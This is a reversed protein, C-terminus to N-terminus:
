ASKKELAVPFYLKITTGKDVGASTVELKGQMESMTSAAYHLGLGSGLKKTSYGQRCVKGLAVRDIGRGNDSLELMVQDKFISTCITIKGGMDGKGEKIAERANELLCLIALRLKARELYLVPLPQLTKELEINRQKLAYFEQEVSEEILKNLDTAECMPQRQTHEWQSQLTSNVQTLLDQLEACHELVHDNQSRMNVAIRELARLALAYQEQHDSQDPDMGLERLRLQVRELREFWIQRSATEQVLQANIRISNLANGLNHLVQSAIEAMGSRHAQEVLARQTEVLDSVVRARMLATVIHERFRALRAIDAQEFGDRVRNNVLAMMGTLRNQVQLPMVMISQAQSFIQHRASDPVTPLHLIGEGAQDLVRLYPRVWEESLYFNQYAAPELGTVALYRFVKERPLYELYVAHDANPFAVLCQDMITGVIRNLSVESNITKAVALLTAQERLGNDLERNKLDLEHTRERVMRALRQRLIKQYRVYGAVLSAILLLYLTYAWWTQWPPPLITLDLVIGQDNWVGDDNCARVQFKYTGPNLNTYTATRIASNAELWGSDFGDMRYSYRHEGPSAFDLATFEFSFVNSDCHLTIERTETITQLLPSNPQLARTAVSKNFLQFDTFALAPPVDNTRIQSPRFFTLGETGGFYLVGNKDAFYANTNFENGQLGDSESYNTFRESSPDFRSIGQNTSLWLNGHQDPLIAYVTDNALGQHTRWTRFRRTKLDLVNLGGGRTGIWLRDHELDPLLCVLRNNSLSGPEQPDANFHKFRDSTLDLRDLGGETAIWLLPGASSHSEAFDRVIPHVISTGNTEAKYSRIKGTRRELRAFGDLTGIWLTGDDVQKREYLCTINDSPLSSNRSDLQTAPGDRWRHADFQLLGSSTGAWISGDRSEVMTLVNYDSELGDGLQDLHTMTQTRDDWIDFGNSTGIWLLGSAMRRVSYVFPYRLSDDQGTGHGFYGFPRRPNFLYIGYGSTGLWVLGSRDQYIDFITARRTGYIRNSGQLHDPPHDLPLQYLGSERSIWLMDGIAELDLVPDRTTQTRPIIDPICRVQNTTPDIVFLDSDTGVWVRGRCAFVVITNSSKFVNNSTSKPEVPFTQWGHGNWRTLGNYTAAWITGRDDQAVRKVCISPFAEPNGPQPLFNRMSKQQPDYCFLGRRETGIWIRRERDEFLCLIKESGAEWPTGTPQPIFRDQKRDYLNLGGSTGVWLNRSQDELLCNIWNDSLSNPDTPDSRYVKFSYGDYRNLGDKTAVWIFGRHDQMVANVQVQSLGEKSSLKRLKYREQASAPVFMSTLCWIWIPIRLQLSLDHWSPHTFPIM